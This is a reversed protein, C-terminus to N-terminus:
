YEVQASPLDKTAEERLRIRRDLNEKQQKTIRETEAPDVNAGMQRMKLTLRRNQALRYDSEILAVLRELNALYDTDLLGETSFVVSQLFAEQEPAEKCLEMLAPWADAVSTDIELIKAVWYRVLGNEIWAPELSERAAVRADGHEILIRLLGKERQTPPTAGV